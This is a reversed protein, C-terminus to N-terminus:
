QVTSVSDIQFKKRKSLSNCLSDLKFHFSSVPDVFRKVLDVNVILKAYNVVLQLVHKLHGGEVRLCGQCSTLLNHFLIINGM